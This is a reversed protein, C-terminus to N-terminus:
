MESDEDYKNDNITTMQTIATCGYKIVFTNIWKNQINRNM